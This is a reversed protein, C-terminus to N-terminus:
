KTRFSRINLAYRLTASLFIVHGRNLIIQEEVPTCFKNESAHKEKRLAM